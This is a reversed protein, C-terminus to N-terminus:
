PSMWHRNADIAVANAVGVVDVGIEGEVVLADGEGAERLVELLGFDLGLGEKVLEFRAGRRDFLQPFSPLELASGDDLPRLVKANGTVGDVFGGAVLADRDLVLDEAPQGSASLLM